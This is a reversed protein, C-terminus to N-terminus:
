DDARKFLIYYEYCNNYPQEILLEVGYRLSPDLDENTFRNIISYDNQNVSIVDGTLYSNANINITQVNCCYGDGIYEYRLWTTDSENTTLFLSTDTPHTWHVWYGTVPDHTTDSLIWGENLLISDRGLRMQRSDGIIWVGNLNNTPNNPQPSDDSPTCSLVSLGILSTLILNKM